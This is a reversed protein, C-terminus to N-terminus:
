VGSCCRENWFGCGGCDPAYEGAESLYWASISFFAVVGIKGGPYLFTEILIKNVGLPQALLNMDSFMVCHSAVIMLMSLIRLLEVSSNRPGSRGAM